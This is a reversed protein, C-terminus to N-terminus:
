VGRCREWAVYAAVAVMLVPLALVYGGAKLVRGAWSVRAAEPEQDGM